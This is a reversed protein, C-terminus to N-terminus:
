TSKYSEPVEVLFDQWNDRSLEQVPTADELTYQGIKTRQLEECYAGIGLKQGIDHALSRIYTGTSCTIELTLSPLSDLTQNNDSTGGRAQLWRERPPPSLYRHLKLSFVTIRTPKREVTIGQRALQYLKKGNIKKASYMPPLQDQEGIFEQLVTKIKNESLDKDYLMHCTAHLMKKFFNKSCTVHKMNYSIKGTGDYTDSTAGLRITTVYTKKLNKFEDLRKTAERGIGVILLGTAFPDLTGAHGIKKIKTVKRLYGVIDHSTWEAPKNVLLFGTDM